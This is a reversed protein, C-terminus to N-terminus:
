NFSKMLMTLRLDINCVSLSKSKKARILLLFILAAILWFIFYIKYFDHRSLKEGNEYM